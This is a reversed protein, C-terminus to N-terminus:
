RVWWGVVVTLASIVIATVALSVLGAVVLQLRWELEGATPLKGVVGWQGTVIEMTSLGGDEVHHRGAQGTGSM